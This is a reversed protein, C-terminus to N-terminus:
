VYVGVACIMYVAGFRRTDTTTALLSTFVYGFAVSAPAGLLPLSVISRDIANHTFDSRTFTLARM